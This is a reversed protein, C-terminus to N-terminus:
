NYLVVEVGIDVCVEKETPDVGEPLETTSKSVLDDPPFFQYIKESKVFSQDQLTM